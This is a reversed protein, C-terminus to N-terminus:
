AARTGHFPGAGPMRSEVWKEIDSSLWGVARPGLQRRQPFLGAKEWRSITMDTVGAIERVDPKRYFRDRM